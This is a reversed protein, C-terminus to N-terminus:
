NGSRLAVVMYVGAFVVVWSAVLWIVELFWTSISQNYRTLDGEEEAKSRAILHRISLFASVVGVVVLIWAMM